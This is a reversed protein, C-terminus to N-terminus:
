GQEIMMSWQIVLGNLALPKRQEAPLTVAEQKEAKLM